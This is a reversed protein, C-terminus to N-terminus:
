ADIESTQSAIYIDILEEIQKWTGVELHEYKLYYKYLDAIVDDTKETLMVFEPKLHEHCEFYEYVCEYFRIQNCADYIERNSGSLKEFKFLSHERKIKKLLQHEKEGRELRRIM